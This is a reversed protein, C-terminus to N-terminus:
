NGPPFKWQEKGQDDLAVLYYDSELFAVLVLDGASVPTTYAKGKGALQYWMEISGDKGVSYVDGSETPILVHDEKVLASATITADPKVPEWNQKQEKTNFSYLYGDVDGFYLNDGDAVPTGWIWGHTDLVPAHKGTAPDFRELQKALSGVYLMGDAGLAAGGPVAGGLDEHWLIDYTEIDIAIVSKDLSTVFVRKGDTVPQGWLRSADASSDSVRIVKVAQKESKDDALDLVYVNGDSNPAFLRNEVILPQAIWLGKAAGFKWEIKPTPSKDAANFDKPDVAYMVHRNSSDLIIVFGNETIVPNTIFLNPSKGFSFGSSKEGAFSWLEKHTKLDIALVSRTNALYAVEDTASLGPWAISGTCGSLLVAALLIISVVVIKKRM